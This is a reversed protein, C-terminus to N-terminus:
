GCGHALGEVLARLEAGRMRAFHLPRAGNLAQDRGGLANAEGRGAGLGRQHGHTEGAGEGALLRQHPELAMEVAPVGVGPTRGPTASFDMRSFGPSMSPTRAANALLGSMAPMM